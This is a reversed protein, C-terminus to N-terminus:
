GRYMVGRSQFYQVDIAKTEAIKIWRGLGVTPQVVSLNDNALTSGLDYRFLGLDKCEILVSDPMATTAIAKLSALGAVPELIKNSTGLVKTLSLQLDAFDTETANFGATKIVEGIASVMMSMQRFAKNYLEKAAFGPTIGGIRVPSSAYEAQTIVNNNDENFVLFENTAM